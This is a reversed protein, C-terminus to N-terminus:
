RPWRKLPSAGLYGERRIRSSFARRSGRKGDIKAWPTTYDPARHGSLCNREWLTKPVAVFGSGRFSNGM